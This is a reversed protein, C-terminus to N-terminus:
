PCPHTCIKLTAWDTPDDGFTDRWEQTCETYLKDQFASTLEQLFQVKTSELVQKTDLNVKLAQQVKEPTTLRFIQLVDFLNTLRQMYPKQWEFGLMRPVHEKLWTRM